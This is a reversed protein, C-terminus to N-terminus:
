AEASTLRRVVLPKSRLEQVEELMEIPSDTGNELELALAQLRPLSGAVSGSARKLKMTVRTIPAVMGSTFPYGSEQQVQDRRIHTACSRKACQTQVNGGDGSPEDEPQVEPAGLPLGVM